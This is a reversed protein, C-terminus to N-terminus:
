RTGRSIPADAIRRAIRGSDLDALYYLLAYRVIEHEPVGLQESQQELTESAFRDLTLEFKRVVGEGRTQSQGSSSM